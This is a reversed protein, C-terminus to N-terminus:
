LEAVQIVFDLQAVFDCRFNYLLIQSCILRMHFSVQPSRILVCMIGNEVYFPFIM